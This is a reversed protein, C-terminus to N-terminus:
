CNKAELIYATMVSELERFRRLIRNIDKRANELSTDRHQISDFLQMQDEALVQLGSRLDRLQIFCEYNRPEYKYSALKHTLRLVCTHNRELHIVLQDFDKTITNPATIEMIKQKVYFVWNFIRIIKYIEEQCRDYKSVKVDM